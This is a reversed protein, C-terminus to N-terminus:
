QNGWRRSVRQRIEAIEISRLAARVQQSEQQERITEAEIGTMPADASEALSRNARGEIRSAISPEGVLASLKVPYPKQCVACRLGYSGDEFRARLWEHRHFSM